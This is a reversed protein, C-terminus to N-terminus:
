VPKILVAHITLSDTPWICDNIDRTVYLLNSGSYTEMVYLRRRKEAIVEDNYFIFFGYQGAKNIVKCKM